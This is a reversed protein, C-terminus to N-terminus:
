PNPASLAPVRALPPPNAKNTKRDLQPKPSAAPVPARAAPKALEVVPDDLSGLRYAVAKALPKVDWDGNKRGAALDQGAYTCLLRGLQNGAAPRREVPQGVDCFHAQATDPISSVLWRVDVAQGADCPMWQDLQKFALWLTKNAPDAVLDCAAKTPPLVVASVVAAPAPGLSAVTESAAPAAEEDPTRPTLASRVSTLLARVSTFLEIEARAPACVLVLLTFTCLLRRM